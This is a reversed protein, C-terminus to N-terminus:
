IKKIIEMRMHSTPCEIIEANKVFEYYEPYYRTHLLDYFGGNEVKYGYLHVTGNVILAKSGDSLTVNYINDIREFDRQIRKKINKQGKIYMKQNYSILEHTYKIHSDM